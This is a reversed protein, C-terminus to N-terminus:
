QRTQRHEKPSACFREATPIETPGPPDIQMYALLLSDCSRRKACREIALGHQSLKPGTAMDSNGAAVPQVVLLQQSLHSCSRRFTYWRDPIAVAHEKAVQMDNQARQGEGNVATARSHASIESALMQGM